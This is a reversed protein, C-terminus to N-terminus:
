VKLLVLAVLYKVAMDLCLSEKKVPYVATM